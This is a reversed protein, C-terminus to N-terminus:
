AAASTLIAYEPTLISSALGSLGTQGRQFRWALYEVNTLTPTGIEYTVPLGERRFVVKATNPSDAGILRAIAKWGRAVEVQFQIIVM